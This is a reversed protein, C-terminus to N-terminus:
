VRPIHCNVNANTSAKLAGGSGPNGINGTKLVVNDIYM